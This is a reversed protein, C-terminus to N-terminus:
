KKPKTQNPSHHVTVLSLGDECDRNYGAVYAATAPCVYGSPPIAPRVYASASRPSTSKRGRSYAEAVKLAEQDMTPFPQPAPEAITSLPDPASPPSQPITTKEYDIAALFITPLMLLALVAYTVRYRQEYSVPRARTRAPTPTPPARRPAPRPTPRQPTRKPEEVLDSSCVDSSWDSIRM